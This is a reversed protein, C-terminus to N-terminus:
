ISYLLKLHQLHRSVQSFLLAFLSVGVRYSIVYSCAISVGRERLDSVDKNRAIGSIKGHLTGKM